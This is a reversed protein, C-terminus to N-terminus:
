GWLFLLVSVGIRARVGSLSGLPTLLLHVSHIQSVCAEQIMLTKLNNETIGAPDSVIMVM